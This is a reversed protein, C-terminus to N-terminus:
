FAVRLTAAISRPAGRDATRNGSEATGINGLYRENFLNQVNIQLYTGEMLFDLDLRGDLDVVTYSPTSEDNVMNTWREDVYRAQAGLTWPGAEYEGRLAWQFQPVEPLENGATANFGGSTNPIDALIETQIWSGSAFVSFSDTVQYGLSGDIGWRNIDGANISYAITSLDPLTEFARVIFNEFEAYYVSASVILGGAGYRYGAEYNRSREPEPSAPVRDYLDDTRPASLNESYSIFATHDPAFEWSAGVNPLLADYDREFSVPAGATASVAASVLPTTPRQRTCWANFTDTQWCYNNLQRSFYPARLGLNVRVTDNLFRGNYEVAFQNLTAISQRNREQFVDGDLTLVQRGNGDKGGFWSDWNGSLDLYGFESTQRHNGRDWTYAFRVRHDDNIDWILSSNVSYRRTNTNSPSYLKIRDLLDGDGNLDVGTALPLASNFFSGQLRQDREEVNTIGGGNALVYQFTPDVTLTLSDSLHFRSQGRISGTNSPNVSFMYYNSCGPNLSSSAQDQRTLNVGALLTCSTSNATSSFNGTLNFADVSERTQPFQNRNENYHLSVSVFDGNQGIPQWIRANYQDKQVGGAGFFHDYETHSYAAWMRTGWPGIEGTEGMLFIRRYNFSGVSPQIIFGLDAAPRRTVMNISGGTASATPSDVDTSGQNVGVREILEPDLQQNSYIAYNGTDNLQIGDLNLSVRASDFGRVTIDGGSSGYADSNSFTVGPLIAISALVSQGPQQSELYEGTLTSRARTVTEEVALGDVNAPGRQGTVVVEAVTDAEFSESGTSQASAATAMLVGGVLATSAWMARKLNNM